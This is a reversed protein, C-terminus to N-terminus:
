MQERYATQLMIHRAAHRTYDITNSALYNCNKRVCFLEKQEDSLERFNFAHRQHHVWYDRKRPCLEGCICIYILSTRERVERSSAVEQPRDKKKKHIGPDTSASVKHIGTAMKAKKHPPAAALPPSGPRKNHYFVDCFDNAAAERSEEKEDKPERKIVREVEIEMDKKEGGEAMDPVADSGSM